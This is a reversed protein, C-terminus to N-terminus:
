PAFNRNIGPATDSAVQPAHTTTTTTTPTALEVSKPWPGQETITVTETVQKKGSTV